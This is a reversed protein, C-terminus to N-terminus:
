PLKVRLFRPRYLFPNDSVKGVDTNNQSVSVVISDKAPFLDPHALPMYRLMGTASDSPIAALAPSPTFPGAPGPANWIVLDKGLFDDRKSM